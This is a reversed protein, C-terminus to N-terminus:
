GLYYRRYDSRHQYLSNALVKLVRIVSLHLDGSGNGLDWERKKGYSGVAEETDVQGGLIVDQLAHVIVILCEIYILLNKKYDNGDIGDIEAKSEGQQFLDLMFEGYFDVALEMLRDTCKNENSHDRHILEIERCASLTDNVASLMMSIIEDDLSQLLMVGEDDVDEDADVIGELDQFHYKLAFKFAVALYMRACLSLVNFTVPVIDEQNYKIISM